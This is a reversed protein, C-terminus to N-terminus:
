LYLGRTPVLGRSAAAPLPIQLASQGGDQGGIDDAVAAEHTGVLLACQRAELGQVPLEELGRDALVAPADNLEHAVAGQDLERAGHVGHAARDHDLVAEGSAFGYWVFATLGAWVAAMNFDRM